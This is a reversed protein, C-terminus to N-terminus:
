LMTKLILYSNSRLTLEAAGEGVQLSFNQTSTLHAFVRGNYTRYCKLSHIKVKVSSLSSSNRGIRPPAIPSLTNDFAVLISPEMEDVTLLTLLTLLDPDTAAEGVCLYKWSGHVIINEWKYLSPQLSSPQPTPTQKHSPLLSRETRWFMWVLDPARMAEYEISAPPAKALSSTAPTKLFVCGKNL